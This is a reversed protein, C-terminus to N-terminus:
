NVTAPTLYSAVSEVMAAITTRAKTRAGVTITGDASEKDAELETTAARITALRREFLRPGILGGVLDDRLDGCRQEVDALAQGAWCYTISSEIPFPIGGESQTYCEIVDQQIALADEEWCEYVAADHIQLIEFAEQYKALRAHMAIMGTDMLSAAFSQVGFNIAENQDVQGLPFTRRRGYKQERIEFPPQSATQVCRRQWAVVGPMRQMLTTVAKVVDELKLQYGEKLLNKWLTEPSGGYFAGYELPKVNDRLQKQVKTLKGSGDGLLDFHPFVVRACETHIDKGSAFVDILFPDRSLHAIIRAELQSFDFEVFARRRPAVVVRRLNPRIVKFSGDAQKKLKAKPVNGFTMESSAVRGTIKHISWIAHVRDRADAYGYCLIEGQGNYRDFTPWVFTSLLKDDERYRLIARVAPIHTLSELVEKKTSTQGSTTTASLQVGLALLLAAIHKGASVKWHWQGAAVDAQLEEFRRQYRAELAGPGKPDDKREKGKAQEWALFHLIQDRIKPDNAIAEVERRSEVVGATFQELLEQNVRRDVPIGNLHMKTFIESKPRDVQEYVARVNFKDVLRKLPGWIKITAYTDKANYLVLSEPTEEANRFESKWPATAYFQATVLQLGHACGPFAAHHLLLTDDWPGELQFGQALLVTRDYLGNHYVKTVQPHALLLRLLQRAWPHLVDWIVSVAMTETALGLARIKAVYAQLAHHRDQDEVYTELDLAFAGEVLARQYLRWVLLSARDADTTETEIPFALRVDKGHALADIKAADYTLNIFALDPTHAGQLSKGGGHLLAAPHIAPIVCRVGTHDVDVEFLTSAIDSIKLTKKARKAKAKATVKNIEQELWAAYRQEADTRAAREIAALDQALAMELGHRSVKFGRRRIDHAVRDKAAKLFAANARAYFWDLKRARQRELKKAKAEAKAQEALKDRKQARKSKGEPPDITDLVAQPIVTRAAPAGLTLIPIGPHQALELQLRTKCARAAQTRVRDDAGQYPICLTANTIGVEARPRGIKTLIKNVVDGSPGVFPQGRKVEFHGPGEGIIIWKPKEPYIGFVPQNPEGNRAFPCQACDAGHATGRSIM